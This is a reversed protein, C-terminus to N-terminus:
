QVRTPIPAGHMAWHVQLGRLLWVCLEAHEDATDAQQALGAALLTALVSNAITVPSGHLLAEIATALRQLEEFRETSLEELGSADMLM